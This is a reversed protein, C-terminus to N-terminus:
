IAEASLVAANDLKRALTAALEDLAVSIQDDASRLPKLCVEARPRRKIKGQRRGGLWIMSSKLVALVM